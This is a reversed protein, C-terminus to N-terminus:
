DGQSQLTKSPRKRLKPKPKTKRKINEKHIPLPPLRTNASWDLNAFLGRFYPYCAFIGVRELFAKVAEEECPEAVSYMVTYQANCRLLSEDDIIADVDLNVICAAFGEDPDYVSSDLTVVYGLEAKERQSYYKPSVDFELKALQIGGLDAAAVVRNYNELLREKEVVPEAKARAMM